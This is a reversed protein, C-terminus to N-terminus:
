NAGGGAHPARPPLEVTAIEAAYRVLLDAPLLALIAITDPRSLKITVGDYTVLSGDDRVRNSEIWVEPDRHFAPPDSQDDPLWTVEARLHRDDVTLVADFRCHEYGHRGDDWGEHHRIADIEDPTWRDSM